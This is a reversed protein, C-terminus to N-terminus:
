WLITSNSLPMCVVLLWSINHLIVFCHFCLWVVIAEERCFGVSSRGAFLFLVSCSVGVSVSVCLQWLPDGQVSGMGGRIGWNLVWAPRLGEGSAHVPVNM